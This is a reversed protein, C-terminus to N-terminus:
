FRPNAAFLHEWGVLYFDKGSESYFKLRLVRGKGRIKTRSVITDYPYDFTLDNIDVVPYNVMRYIQSPNSWRSSDRGFDWKAVLFCSSPLDSEYGGAGDSVFRQETRRLYSTIYPNNKKLTADGMFDYGTEAYSDYSDSDWDLFDTGTFSAFTLKNSATKVLFKVDSSVIGSSNITTIYGLGLNGTTSTTTVTSGTNAYTLTTTTPASIVTYLGNFTSDSSNVSVNDGAVLGHVASTTITAVNSARARQSITVTTQVVNDVDSLIDFTTDGSGFGSLFVGGAVYPTNAGSASKDSVTWPFFAELELDLVLIKNFKHDVTSANDPYMWYVRKNLRDFTATVQVKKDNSIEEFFTKIPQSFQKVVEQTAETTIAYIGSVDWFIPTGMADILSRATSIGFPSLKRIYFESAKFVQDVGGIMWIGNQAFVLLTSGMPFLVRINSADPIILYGGDSDVVGASDEETPDSMQHYRDYDADSQIVRSFFIKGGNKSSDLGALWVRGAYAATARFRASEVEEPLFTTTIGSATQRDKNFFNLTYHGVPALTNGGYVKQFENTSMNNSSDKGIWWPKSRSPYNTESSDWYDWATPNGDRGTNKAYWGMNFLDYKYQLFDATTTAGGLQALSPERDYNNTNVGSGTIDTYQQDFDRVTVNVTSVSISDSSLTYKVRIPNIAASTIILQGNVTSAQVPEEAYDFGNAASYTSLSVTFSKIGASLTEYSKDYFYLNGNVQVVLFETGSLGSVNSWTFSHVFDGANVTFSSEQYNTEYEIGKRRRRAGNKLLDCNLEDSSANEPFTMETAETVLGKVFTNVVKQSYKQPM